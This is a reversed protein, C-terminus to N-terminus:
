RAMEHACAIPTGVPRGSDRSAASSGARLRSTFYSPAAKIANGQMLLDKRPSRLIFYRYSVAVARRPRRLKSNGFATVRRPPDSAPGPGSVETIAEVGCPNLANAPLFPLLLSGSMRIRIVDM